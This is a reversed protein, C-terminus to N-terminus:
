SPPGSHLQLALINSRTSRGFGLPWHVLLEIVRWLCWSGVMFFLTLFIPSVTWVGFGLCVLCDM